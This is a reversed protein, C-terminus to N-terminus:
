SPHMMYWLKGIRSIVPYSLLLIGFQIKRLPSFGSLRVTKFIWPLLPLHYLAARINVTYMKEIFANWYGDRFIADIYSVLSTRPYAKAVITPDFVIHKRARILLLGLEVDDHRHGSSREPFPTTQIIKKRIGMIECDLMRGSTLPQAKSLSPYMRTLGRLYFAYITAAYINDPLANTIRGTVAALTPDQIFHKRIRSLYDKSAVLDDDLYVIIDGHANKAGLNRASSISHKTDHLVKILSGLRVEPTSASGDVIIIELPKITQNLLSNVCQSLLKPRNRTLVVVSITPLHRNM